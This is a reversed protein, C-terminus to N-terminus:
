FKRFKFDPILIEFMLIFILDFKKSFKLNYFKQFNIKM